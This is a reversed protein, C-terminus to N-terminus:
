KEKTKSAKGVKKLEQDAKKMKKQESEFKKNLNWRVSDKGVAPGVQVSIALLALLAVFYKMKEELQEAVKSVPM